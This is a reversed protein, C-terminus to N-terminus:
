LLEEIAERFEEETYYNVDDYEHLEKDEVERADCIWLYDKEFEDPYKKEEQITASKPKSGFGFKFNFM